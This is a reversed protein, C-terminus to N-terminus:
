RSKMLTASVRPVHAVESLTVIASPNMMFGFAEDGEAFGTAPDAALATGSFDFYPIMPGSLLRPYPLSWLPVNMIQIDVPNLTCACIRILLHNPSHTSPVTITSLTLSNPYDGSTYTRAKSSFAM